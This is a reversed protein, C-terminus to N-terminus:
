TGGPTGTVTLVDGTFADITMSGAPHQDAKNMLIVVYVAVWRDPNRLPFEYLAMSKLEAGSATAIAALLKERSIKPTSPGFQAGPQSTVPKTQTNIVDGTFADIMTVLQQGNPYVGTIEWVKRNDATGSQDVRKVRRPGAM